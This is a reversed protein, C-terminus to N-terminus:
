IPRYRGKEIPFVVKQLLTFAIELSDSHESRWFVLVDFCHNFTSNDEYDGFALFKGAKKIQKGSFKPKGVQVIDM